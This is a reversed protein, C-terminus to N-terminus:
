VVRERHNQSLVSRSISVTLALLGSHWESSFSHEEVAIGIDLLPIKRRRSRTAEKKVAEAGANVLSEGV